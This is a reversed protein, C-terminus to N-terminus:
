HVPELSPVAHAVYNGAYPYLILILLVAATLVHLRNVTVNRSYIVTTVYAVALAAAKSAFFCLGFLEWARASLPKFPLFLAYLGFYGALAVVYFVAVVYVVGVAYRALVSSDQM